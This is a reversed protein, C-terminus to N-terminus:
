PRATPLGKKKESYRGIASGLQTEGRKRGRLYKGAQVTGPVGAIKGFVEYPTARTYRGAGLMVTEGAVQAIAGLPTSGYRVAGGVVPLPEVVERGVRLATELKNEGKRKALEYAKGPTPFPSNIGLINEYFMNILTYGLLLRVVKKMAQKNTIAPNGIGLVERTLFTWNRIVWTQFPVAAKGLATRQIPAIDSGMASAQTRIVLADAYKRAAEHSLKDVKLAKRFAGMWSATATTLDLMGLPLMGLYGVVDVAKQAKGLVGKSLGAQAMADAVNADFSGFRTELVHSRHFADKVSKPNFLHAIGIATYREGIEAYTGAIATGQVTVSRANFSLVAWTMNKSLRMLAKVAVPPTRFYEGVQRKGSQVDLWETLARATQPSEETLKFRDTGKGFTMLLERGRAVPEAMHIHKIAAKSYKQYVRFADLDIDGTNFKREKAFGFPTMREHLWRGDMDLPTKGLEAADDMARFFTSYNEVKPFPEKGALIRAEQLQNYLHEYGVRMENYADMEKSTLKPIKKGMAELTNEGAKQRSASYIGIRESSKRPLSRRMVKVSKRMTGIATHIAKEAKKVPWYFLDKAERGLRDFYWDSPTLQTQKIDPLERVINLEHKYIAIVPKGKINRQRAVELNEGKPVKVPSEVVNRMVPTIGPLTPQKLISTLAKIPVVEARVPEGFKEAFYKAGRQASKEHIRRNYPVDTKLERGLKARQAHIVEHMFGETSFNPGITINSPIKASGETFFVDDVPMKNNIRVKTDLVNAFQKRVQPDAIFDGINGM